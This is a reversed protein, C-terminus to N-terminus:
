ISAKPPHRKVWNLRKMHLLEFNEYIRPRNHRMGKVIAKAKLWFPSVNFADFFLDENLIRRNVLLGSLEFFGCVATFHVREKSTTLYRRKFEAYNKASLESLFWVIADRHRDYIDYLKILTDVDKRSVTVM